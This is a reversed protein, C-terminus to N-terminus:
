ILIKDKEEKNPWTHIIAGEEVTATRPYERFDFKAKELGLFVQVPRMLTSIAGLELSSRARHHQMM